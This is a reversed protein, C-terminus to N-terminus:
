PLKPLAEANPQSTSETSQPISGSGPKADPTKSNKQEIGSGGRGLAEAQKAQQELREIRVQQELLDIQEQAARILQDHDSQQRRKNTQPDTPKEPQIQPPPNDQDNTEQQREKLEKLERYHRLIEAGSRVKAPDPTDNVPTSNPATEYKPKWDVPAGL